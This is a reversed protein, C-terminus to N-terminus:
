LVVVASIVSILPVYAVPVEPDRYNIFGLFSWTVMLFPAIWAALWAFFSCSM